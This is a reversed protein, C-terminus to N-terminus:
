PEAPTYPIKPSRIVYQEGKDGLVVGYTFEGNIRGLEDIWAAEHGKADVVFVSFYHGGGNYGASVRHAPVTFKFSGTGKTTGLVSARAMWTVTYPATGGQVKLRLTVPEPPDGIRSPGTFSTIVPHTSVADAPTEADAPGKAEYRISLRIFDVWKARNSNPLVGWVEFGFPNDGVKLKVDQRWGASKQIPRESSGRYLYMQSAEKGPILPALVITLTATASKYGDTLRVYTPKGEGDTEEALLLVEPFTGDGVVTNEFDGWAASLFSAPVDAEAPFYAFHVYSKTGGAAISTANDGSSYPGLQKAAANWPITRLRGPYNPDAVYLREGTVRYVAMAHRSSKDANAMDVLLPKGTLAMAIRFENYVTSHDASKARATKIASVDAWPALQVMSALRYGDSDDQWLRPTKEAAGNNDYHGNLPSYGEGQRKNTYYWIATDTMGRCIGGPSIFSGYNTFQWDDVGPRFGSDAVAPVKALDVVAAVVASFHTAIAAAHGREGTLASLPTLTGSQADYYMVLALHRADVETSPSLAISVEAAAGLQEAGEVTYVDSAPALIGGFGDFDVVPASKVSIGAGSRLSGDAFSIRIAGAQVTTEGAVAFSQAASEAGLKLEGTLAKTSEAKPVKGKEPAALVLQQPRSVNVGSQDEVETFVQASQGCATLLLAALALQSLGRIRVVAELRQGYVFARM